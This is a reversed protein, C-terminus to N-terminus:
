RLQTKLKLIYDKIYGCTEKYEDSNGYTEDFQARIYLYEEWMEAWQRITGFATLHVLETLHELLGGLRQNELLFYSVLVSGKIDFLHRDKKQLEYYNDPIDVDKLMRRYHYQLSLVEHYHESARERVSSNDPVLEKPLFISKILRLISDSTLYQLGCDNLRKEMLQLLNYTFLQPTNTPCAGTSIYWYDESRNLGQALLRESVATTYASIFIFFLKGHPGIKFQEEEIATKIINIRNETQAMDKNLGHSEVFPKLESYESSNLQDEISNQIKDGCKWRFKTFQQKITASKGIRELLEYGYNGDLLYDLMVLDYKWKKLVEITDDLSNVCDIVIKAESLKAEKPDPQTPDNRTGLQIFEKNIYERFQVCVGKDKRKEDDFLAREILRKIISMKCNSNPMGEKPEIAKDDVLLIRWRWKDHSDGENDVWYADLLERCEKDTMREIVSESHFIFPSVGKAHSGSLYSQELIRANLDAYEEAVPLDYIKTEYNDYIKEVAENFLKQFCNPNTKEFEAMPVYYNWISNDMYQYYRPLISPLPSNCYLNDNFVDSVVLHLTPYRLGSRGQGLPIIDEASGKILLNDPTHIIIRFKFSGEHGLNNDETWVKDGSVTRFVLKIFKPITAQDYKFVCGTDEGNKKFLIDIHNNYCM